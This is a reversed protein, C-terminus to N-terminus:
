FNFDTNAPKKIYSVIEGIIKLHKNLSEIQLATWNKEGFKHSEYEVRQNALGSNVSVYSNDSVVKHYFNTYEIKIKEDKILIILNAFEFGSMWKAFMVSKTQNLITNFMMKRRNKSLTDLNNPDFNVYQISILQPKGDNDKKKTTALTRLSNIKLQYWDMIRTYIEDAKLGPLEEIRTLTVKKTDRDIPIDNIITDVTSVQATLKSCILILTFFITLSPSKKMM